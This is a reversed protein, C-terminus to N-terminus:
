MAQTKKHEEADILELYLLKLKTNEIEVLSYYRKSDITTEEIVNPALAKLIELSNFQCTLDGKSYNNIAFISLSAALENIENTLEQHYVDRNLYSEFLDSSYFHKRRLVLDLLKALEDM